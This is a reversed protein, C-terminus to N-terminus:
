RGSSVGEWGGRGERIDDLNSGPCSPRQVPNSSPPIVRRALLLGREYDKKRIADFAAAIALDDAAIGKDRLRGVLRDIDAFRRRNSLLGIVNRIIAPQTNGQDISRQYASLVDDSRGELEAIEGQLLAAGWWDPRREAIESALASIADLDSRRARPDGHQGRRIQDMRSAAAAFRWTTGQEGDVKRMKSVLDSADASDAADIALNFLGLLLRLNEPDLAAQERWYERAKAPERLRLETFALRDLFGPLDSPPLQKRTEALRSVAAKAEDGGRQAWYDLRALDIALNPGLDNMAEDLVSLALANKGQRQALRALVLRFQLNRPAKKQASSLFAWADDLRNQAALLDVRMLILPENAQPLIKEAEGLETEVHKWRRQDIPLRSTKQILIRLIDLRVEPKPGTMPLLIALAEDLKDSRELARAYAIRALDQGRDGEAAQRLAALRKEEAGVRGYCDALMLNSRVVMEPTSALVARATELKPIADSWRKQQVLMEAELFPVLTDGVGARASATSTFTPAM